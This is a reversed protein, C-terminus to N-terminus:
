NERKKNYRRPKNQVFFKSDVYKKFNDFIMLGLTEAYSDSQSVMAFTDGPLQLEETYVLNNSNINIYLVDNDREDSKEEMKAYIHGRIRDKLTGFVISEIKKQVTSTDKMVAGDNNKLEESM